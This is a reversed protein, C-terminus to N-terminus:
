PGSARPMMECTSHRMLALALVRDSCCLRASLDTPWSDMEHNSIHMIADGSRLTLCNQIMSEMYIVCYSRRSDLACAATMLAMHM